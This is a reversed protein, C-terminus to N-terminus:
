KRPDDATDNVGDQVSAGVDLDLGRIRIRDRMPTIEYTAGLRTGVSVATWDEPRTEVTEVFELPGTLTARDPADEPVLSTEEMSAEPVFVRLDLTYRDDAKGGGQLRDKGVVVAEGRREPLWRRTQGTSLLHYLLLIISMVGIGIYIVLLRQRPNSPGLRRQVEYRNAGYGRDDEAGRRVYKVTM